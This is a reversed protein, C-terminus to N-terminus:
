LLTSLSTRWSFRESMMRQKAGSRRLLREPEMAHGVAFHCEMLLKAGTRFSASHKNPKGEAFPVRLYLVQSIPTSGIVGECGL